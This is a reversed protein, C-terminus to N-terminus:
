RRQAPDPRQRAGAATLTVGRRGRELLRVGLMSELRAIRKSLAQQSIFLGSAARGFHLEDAVAVFARLLSSDLDM